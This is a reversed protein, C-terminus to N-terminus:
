ASVHPSPLRIAGLHLKQANLNGDIFDLQTRQGYSVGAWVMVGGGGHRVRNVVKVDAFQEGYVGDAGYLQDRSEDTFLV